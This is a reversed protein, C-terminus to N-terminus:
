FVMEIFLILGFVPDAFARAQVEAKDLTAALCDEDIRLARAQLKQGRRRRMLNMWLMTNRSNVLFCASM